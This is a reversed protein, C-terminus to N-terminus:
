GIMWQVRFIFVTANGTQGSPNRVLQLDPQISLSATLALQYTAEITTEHKRDRFDARSLGVSLHDASALTFPDSVDIGLSLHEPVMSDAAPCLGLNLFARAHGFSGLEIAQSLNIYAGILHTPALSASPQKYHWLGLGLQTASHLAYGYDLEAIELAGNGFPHIRQTPDGQFVGAHLTLDGQRRGFVLGYGPEPYTSVPFNGSLTPDLSFSANLLTSAAETVDFLTNLDILGLRLTNGDTYKEQFWASYIRTANPAEINSVSQFDGIHSASPQGSRVDLFSLHLLGGRWAGLPHTPADIAALLMGDYVTGTDLGGHLDSVTENNWLLNAGLSSQAFTKGSLLVLALLCAQTLIALRSKSFM